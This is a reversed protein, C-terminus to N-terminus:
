VRRAGSSNRPGAIKENHLCIAEMLTEGLTKSLGRKHICAMVRPISIAFDRQVRRWNRMRKQENRKTM